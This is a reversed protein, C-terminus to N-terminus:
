SHSFGNGKWLMYIHHDTHIENHIVNHIVQKSVHITNPNESTSPLAKEVHESDVFSWLIMPVPNGMAECALSTNEGVYIHADDPATAIWPDVLVFDHVAM